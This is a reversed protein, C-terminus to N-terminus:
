AGLQEYAAAAALVGADDGRRGVFQLGVPMADDGFGCPLVTAPAQALNIPYSFGAWETWRSLGSDPPVEHGVAFGTVAVAPSVIVDLEGFMRDFAGGFLARATQAQVLDTASYRSGAEAVERLGAEVEGLRDPPIARLRTAAGTFWHANFLEWLDSGPLTVPHLVAGANSLRSLAADFANRVDPAVSGRPPTNWVGIRLGALGRPPLPALKPYALPSQYWDRIDRGSMVDLMLVADAVSRAMPGIHAVTGFPSAPYAPVRGFTPKHGVLGTFGSPIRISGGGDTGLHLVGAGTAAAVAAGGSSGGPTRDPNWPNRTIGSFASDTLAKWGFEPTATLGLLVAGAARLLAVTPADEAADVGPVAKTGYHVTWGRVWVIDKITTPVGDIPSAPAGARWRAESARASALAAQPDLHTFANFKGHVEAARDLAAQTAEVPSLSGDAYRSTLQAASMRCLEPADDLPTSRIRDLPM